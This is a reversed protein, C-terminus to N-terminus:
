PTPPIITRTDVAVLLTPRLSYTDRVHLLQQNLAPEFQHQSVPHHTTSPVRATTFNLKTLPRPQPQRHQISQTVFLFSAIAALQLPLTSSPRKLYRAAKDSKILFGCGLHGANRPELVKFPSACVWLPRPPLERRWHARTIQGAACDM